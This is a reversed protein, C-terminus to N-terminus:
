MFILQDINLSFHYLVMYVLIFISFMHCKSLFLKHMVFWCRRKEILSHCKGGLVHKIGFRHIREILWHWISFNLANASPNLQSLIIKSKVLILYLGSLPWIRWNIRDINSVDFLQFDLASIFRAPAARQWINVQLDAGLVVYHDNQRNSCRLTELLTLQLRLYANRVFLIKLM